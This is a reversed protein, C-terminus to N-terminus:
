QEIREGDVIDFYVQNFRDKSVPSCVGNSDKTAYMGSPYQFVTLPYYHFFGKSANIERGVYEHANEPTLWM